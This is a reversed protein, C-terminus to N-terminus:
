GKLYCKNASILYTDGKKDKVQLQEGEYDKWKKIDLELYIGDYNCVAKDFTYKTDFIQKNCGTLFLLILTILLITAGIIHAGNKSMILKKIM